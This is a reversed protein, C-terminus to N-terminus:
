QVWTTTNKMDRKNLRLILFTISTIMFWIIFILKVQIMYKLILDSEFDSLDGELYLIITLNNWARGFFDTCFGIKVFDDNFVNFSQKDFTILNEDLYMRFWGYDDLNNIMGDGWSDNVVLTYCAATNICESQYFHTYDRFSMGDGSLM